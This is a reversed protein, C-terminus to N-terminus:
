LFSYDDDFVSVSTKYVKLATSILALFGTDTIESTLKTLHQFGGTFCRSMDNFFFFNAGGGGGCM